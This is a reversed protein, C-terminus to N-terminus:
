LNKKHYQGATVEFTVTRDQITGTLSKARTIKISANVHSTKAQLAPVGEVDYPVEVTYYTTGSTFNPITDGKWGFLGRYFEPIDPWTISALDANANPLYTQVQLFYEKVKGSESTVRLIDGDKLDPRVQGDVWVFEWTAQSPKELYKLLSDTRLDYSLGFRYGTITDVGSENRTVRPWSLIGNQARTTVMGEVNRHDIPVVINDDAVPEKV